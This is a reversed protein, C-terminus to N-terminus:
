CCLQLFFPSSVEEAGGRSPVKEDVRKGVGPIRGNGGRGFRGGGQGFGELLWGHLRQYWSQIRDAGQLAGSDGGKECHGGGAELEM